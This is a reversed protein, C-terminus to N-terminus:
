LLRPTGLDTARYITSTVSHLLSASGAVAVAAVSVVLDSEDEIGGGNQCARVCVCVCVCVCVLFVCNLVIRLFLSLIEVSLSKYYVSGAVVVAGEGREDDEGGNQCVCLSVCVRVCMCVCVLVRM